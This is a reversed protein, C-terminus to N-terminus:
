PTSLSPAAGPSLVRSPANMALEGHLPKL